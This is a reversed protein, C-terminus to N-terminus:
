DNDGGSSEELRFYLNGLHKAWPSEFLIALIPGPPSRRLINVGAYLEEAHVHSQPSLKAMETMILRITQALPQRQIPREWIKDLM